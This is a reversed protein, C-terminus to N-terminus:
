FGEMTNVHAKCPGDGEEDRAFEGRRTQCLAQEETSCTGFFSLATKDDGEDASGRERSIPISIVSLCPQMISEVVIRHPFLQHRLQVLDFPSNVIRDCADSM